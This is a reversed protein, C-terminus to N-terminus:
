TISATWNEDPFLVAALISNSEYRHLLLFGDRTESTPGAYVGARRFFFGSVTKRGSRLIM